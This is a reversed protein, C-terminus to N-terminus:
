RWRSRLPSDDDTPTGTEHQKKGNSLPEQQEHDLHKTHHVSEIWGNKGKLKVCTMIHSTIYM